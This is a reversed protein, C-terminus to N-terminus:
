GEGSQTARARSLVARNRERWATKNARICTRCVRNNRWRYTNAPTLEHGHRCHTKDRNAGYRERPGRMINEQHTVPELHAPNVCSPNRCLHDMDLKPDVPGHQMEYSVRHAPRRKGDIWFSGYGRQNKCGTWTWCSDGKQVKAWFREEVPVPVFGKIGKVAGM